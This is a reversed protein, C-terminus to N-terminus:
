QTRESLSLGLRKIILNALAVVDTEVSRIKYSRLRIHCKAAHVWGSGRSAAAM